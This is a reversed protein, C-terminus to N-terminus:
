RGVTKCLVAHTSQGAGAASSECWVQIFPHFTGVAYCTWCVGLVAVANGGAVAAPTPGMNCPWSAQGLATCSPKLQLGVAVAVRGLQVRCGSGGRASQPRRQCVACVTYAPWYQAPCRVCYALLPPAHCGGIPAQAASAGALHALLSIRRTTICDSARAGTVVCAFGQAGCRLLSACTAAGWSSALRSAVQQQGAQRCQRHQVHEPMLHQM